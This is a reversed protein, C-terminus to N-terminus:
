NKEIVKLKILMRVLDDKTYPAPDNKLRGHLERLATGRADEKEFGSRVYKDVLNNYVKKQSETLTTLYEAITGEEMGSVKMDSKVLKDRFEQLKKFLEDKSYEQTPKQPEEEKPEVEGKAVRMKESYIGLEKVKEIENLLKNVADTAGVRFTKIANTTRKGSDRKDRVDKYADHIQFVYKPIDVNTVGNEVVKKQIRRGLNSFREFEMEFEAAKGLGSSEGRAGETGFYSTIRRFAKEFEELDNIPPDAFGQLCLLLLAFGACTSLTKM